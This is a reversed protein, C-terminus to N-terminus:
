VAVAVTVVAVVAAAAAVVVAAVVAAVATVKNLSALLRDWERNNLTFTIFRSFLPIKLALNTGNKPLNKKTQWISFTHKLDM